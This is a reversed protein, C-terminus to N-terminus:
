RQTMTMWPPIPTYNMFDPDLPNPPRHAKPKGSSMPFVGVCKPHETIGAPSGGALWQPVETEPDKARCRWRGFLDADLETSIRDDYHLKRDSPGFADRLAERIALVHHEAPGAMDKKGVAALREREADRRMDFSDAVVRGAILGAGLLGPVRSLSHRPARM